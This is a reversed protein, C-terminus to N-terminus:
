QKVKIVIITIDDSQPTGNAFQVISEKIINLIEASSKTVNIKVLEELKQDSYEDDHENKAETVGDTFLVIVDDKKLQIEDSLYPIMTKMVGFIIGGKDLYSIQGDRILIPPNHGANVYKLAATEDDLRCWFFTIFKGDTTNETVLDNIDATAKEIELNQKCISKLFAQLNAMLLSAPVGKGSVDAITVYYKNEGNKIVDYYDGGVQKSSLSMAAIDFRKFEPLEGPLLNKQIDKALELEEELRQKELAESFLRKNELSIIALSAVSYIFEIDSANYDVNNIRKGLLIIGKTENQIKMPVILEFKMVALNHFKSNIEDKRITDKIHHLEPNKLEDLLKAKSITTELIKYSKEEFYVIAYISTLFNGLMSYVLLKSIRSEETILGFEKSLEFLSSLRNIRQDLDRNMAKLEDIFLSNEIATSAINIITKLFDKEEDSYPTKTIKEGLAIFGLVRRSSSIKEFHICKGKELFESLETSSDIEEPLLNEPFAHLAESSFGRQSKIEMKGNTMLAVFGRTTLFKGFCSLLLNNLTFDLDLSSNVIRSFEVLATLNRKVRLTENDPTMM